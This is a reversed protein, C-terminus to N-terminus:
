QDVKSRTIRNICQNTFHPTGCRFQNGLDPSFITKIFVEELLKRGIDAFHCPTIEPIGVGKVLRNGPNNKM